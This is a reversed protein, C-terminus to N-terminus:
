IKVQSPVFTNGDFYIQSVLLLMYYIVTNYNNICLTHILKIHFSSFNCSIKIGANAAPYNLTYYYM